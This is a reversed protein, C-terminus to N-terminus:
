RLNFRELAPVVDKAMEVLTGDDYTDATLRIDSHRMFLQRVKVPVGQDRLLVNASKRLSRFKAVGKATEVPIAAAKLDRLFISNVKAPVTFVLDQSGKGTDRAWARLEEALGPLLLLKADEDNKTFAGPLDVLPYPKHEFDIYGVRLCALENKRLGTLMATKYLLGRERGERELRATVEPRVRAVLQGKRAGRRITLAERLPRERTTDLLRQLEDPSLSRFKTAVGGVPVDVTKMFNRGIRKRKVLWEAFGNMVSHHKKKTTPAKKMGVLYSEVADGTLDRLEKVDCAALMAKLIRKTEKYYKDDGVRERLVPLYKELHAAINGDLHKKYPDALGAEGRELAKVLKNMEAESSQKDKFAPMSKKKKGDQWFIYWKKSKVRVKVAGPTGKPVRKGDADVYHVVQVKRIFAV